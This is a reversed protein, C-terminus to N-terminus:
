GIASTMSQTADSCCSQDRFQHDIRLSGSDHNTQNPITALYNNASGASNPLPEYQQLYKVAIPDLRSAPITFNPFPTRLRGSGNLSGPDFIMSTQSFNGTRLQATPVQAASAQATEGRVGEYTAFFSRIRRGHRGALRVVSSIRASSQGRCLGIRLTVWHTQLM